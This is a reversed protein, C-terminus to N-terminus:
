GERKILTKEWGPMSGIFEYIVDEYGLEGKSPKDAYVFVSGDEDIAAWKAWTPCKPHKFVDQTLKIFPEPLEDDYDSDAVVDEDEGADDTIWRSLIKILRDYDPVSIMVPGNTTIVKYAVIPLDVQSWLANQHMVRCKKVDESNIIREYEDETYLREAAERGIEKSHIPKINTIMDINIMENQATQFLKM